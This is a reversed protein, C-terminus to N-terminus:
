NLLYSATITKLIVTLAPTLGVKLVILGIQKPEENVKDFELVLVIGVESDQNGANVFLLLVCYINVGVTPCHAHVPPTVLPVANEGVTV